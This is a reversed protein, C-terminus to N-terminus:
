ALQRYLAVTRAAEAVDHVRLIDAGNQLAAFNLVQTAPLSEDPSINLYRYILSKRSVGVLIRPSCGEAIRVTKFIELSKLLEYNQDITKSFGVGPDLIWDKIGYSDAKISFKDFYAKVDRVVDEYDTMGSMTLPNGRKHM